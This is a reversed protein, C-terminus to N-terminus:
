KKLMNIFKQPAYACIRATKNETAGRAPTLLAGRPVSHSAM